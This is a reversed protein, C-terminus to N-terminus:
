RARKTPVLSRLLRPRSALTFAVLLASASLYMLWVLVAMSAHDVALCLLLSSALAAGGLGHLARSTARPLSASGQVQQWHPQKALALWAMGSVSCVFGLALWAAEAM